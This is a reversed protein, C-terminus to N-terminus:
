AEMTYKLLKVEEDQLSFVKIIEYIREKVEKKKWWEKGEKVTWDKSDTIYLLNFLNAYTSSGPGNIVDGGKEIFRCNFRDIYKNNLLLYIFYASFISDLTYFNEVRNIVDDLLKLPIINPESVKFYDVYKRLILALISYVEPSIYPSNCLLRDDVSFSFNGNLNKSHYIMKHVKEANIGNKVFLSIIPSKNRYKSHLVFGQNRKILRFLHERCSIIGSNYAINEGSASSIAVEFFTSLNNTWREVTNIDKFYIKLNM